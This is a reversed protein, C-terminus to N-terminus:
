ELLKGVFVDLLKDLAKNKDEKNLSSGKVKAILDLMESEWGKELKEKEESYGSSDEWLDDWESQTNDYSKPYLKENEIREYTHKQSDLGRMKKLHEIGQTSSPRM